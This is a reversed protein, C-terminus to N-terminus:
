KDYHNTKFKHNINIKVHYICAGHHAKPFVMSLAYAISKHQDPVFILNEVGGIAEKFKMM